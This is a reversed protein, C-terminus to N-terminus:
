SIFIISAMRGTIGNDRRYSYFKSNEEYTCFQGGYIQTVGLRQLQLRGIAYCDLQWRKDKKIFGRQYDPHENLFDAYLAESVAFYQPGLAPGMWVLLDNPSSSMAKLTSEIVGNLLGKWGAHIAAVETGQTNCVLLPLCDATLVACVLHRTQTFSADAECPFTTTELCVAKHSHTQCLWKPETPLNLDKILSRRNSNVADANDNVHNALNFSDFPPQSHGASRTTTYARVTVAAPWDPLIYNRQNIMTM